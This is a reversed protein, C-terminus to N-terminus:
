QISYFWPHGEQWSSRAFIAGDEFCFFVQLGKESTQGVIHCVKDPRGDLRKETRRRYILTQKPELYLVFVVQQSGLLTLIFSQVEKDYLVESSIEINSTPDYQNFRTGDRLIAAWQYKM